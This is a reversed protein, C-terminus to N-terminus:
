DNKEVEGCLGNKIENIRDSKFGYSTKNAILRASIPIITEFPKLDNELLTRGTEVIDVIVDALDLIPAIENCPPNKTEYLPLREDYIMTTATEQLNIYFGTAKM